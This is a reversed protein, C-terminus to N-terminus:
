KIQLLILGLAVLAVGSWQCQSLPERFLLCSSIQVLTFGGGIALAYVLNPNGLKLAFPLVVVCSFGTANALAFYIWWQLGTSQSAFKLLINAGAMAVAYIFVLLYFTM